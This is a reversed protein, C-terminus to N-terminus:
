LRSQLEPAVDYVFQQYREKLRKGTVESSSLVGYNFKMKVWITRKNSKYMTVEYDDAFSEFNREIDAEVAAISDAVNRGIPLTSIFSLTMNKKYNTIIYAVNKFKFKWQGSAGEEEYMPLKELGDNMLTMFEQATLSKIKLKVVPTAYKKLIKEMDPYINSIYQIFKEHYGRIDDGKPSKNLPYHLVVVTVGSKLTHPRVVFSKAGKPLRTSVRRKIEAFMKEKKYASVNEGTPLLFIEDFSRGQNITEVEVDAVSWAWHGLESEKRQVQNDQSFGHGMVEVFTQVDFISSYDKDLVGEFYEQLMEGNADDIAYYLSATEDRLDVLLSRVEDLTKGAVSISGNLIMRQGDHKVEATFGSLDSMMADYNALLNLQSEVTGEHRVREVIRPDVNALQQTIYLRSGTYRIRTPIGFDVSDQEDTPATKALFKMDWANNKGQVPNVGAISKDNQHATIIAEFIDSSTFAYASFSMSLFLIAALGAMSFNNCKM